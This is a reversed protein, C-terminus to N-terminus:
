YTILSLCWLFFIFFIIFFTNVSILFYTIIFIYNLFSLSNFPFM